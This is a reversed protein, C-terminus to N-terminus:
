RQITTTPHPTATQRARLIPIPHLPDNHGSSGGVVLMPEWGMGITDGIHVTYEEIKESKWSLLSTGVYHVIRGSSHFM